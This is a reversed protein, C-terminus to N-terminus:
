FFQEFYNIGTIVFKIFMSKSFPIEFVLMHVENYKVNKRLKIRNEIYLYFKLSIIVHKHM